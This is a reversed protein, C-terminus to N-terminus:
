RCPINVQSLVVVYLYKESLRVGGSVVYLDAYGDNNADFFLSGMDEFDGDIPGNSISFSTDENQIYLVSSQGAAAGVYFDELGDNNVDAVSVGPGNRSHMHPLIPQLKFDVVNDEVHQFTSDLATENETLWAPWWIEVSEVNAEQGLGFHIIPDVSSEYGRSLFYQEYQTATKTSVKIKAGIGQLNGSKGKLKIKLYHNPKEKVTKNEYVFAKQNVNNVVLDLDGDNDLDAYAAGNSCSPDTIGWNESIKEFTSNGKNKYVYNNLKAPPLAKISNLKQQIKVEREGLPNDYIGQYHIYDLDGLDRLFGNTIYLDKFGDNDYDAFLSSWSWDTSSLGAM